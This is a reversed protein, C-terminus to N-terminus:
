KVPMPYVKFVDLEVNPRDNSITAKNTVPRTKRARGKRLGISTGKRNKNIPRNCGSIRCKGITSIM